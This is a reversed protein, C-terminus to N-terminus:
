IEVTDGLAPASADVGRSRLDEAFAECRDGHNVLVRADRYGDLFGLLGTRDAHASFDFLEVRASIPMHRGDIEASGTEYLERGPTGEVQYGVLAVLNGPHSRIAPVYTMAPGGQLMGSTTVVVTNERAIRERQGRRGTVERANSAARRLADPDRVFGEHRRFIGTVDTGMGDVYCDIGAEALLM